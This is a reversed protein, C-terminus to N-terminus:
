EKRGARRIQYESASTGPAADGILAETWDVAENERERDEAMERYRAILSNPSGHAAKRAAEEVASEVYGDLVFWTPKGHSTPNGLPERANGNWRTALVEKRDWRIRAVAMGDEGPDHIVELVGGVLRKPSLVEEPKVYSM